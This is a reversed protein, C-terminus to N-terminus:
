VVTLFGVMGLTAMMLSKVRAVVLRQGTNREPCGEPPMVSDCLRATWSASISAAAASDIKVRCATPTATGNAMVACTKGDDLSYYDHNLTRLAAVNIALGLDESNACSTKEDGNNDHDDAATIATTLDAPKAASSGNKSIAFDVSRFSQNQVIPKYYDGCSIWYVDWTLRWSGEPLANVGELFNAVFYPEEPSSGNPLTFSRHLYQYSYGNGVSDSDDGSPNSASRIIYHIQPELVPALEVYNQIAFVVPMSKSDTPPAYTENRPFVLDVEMIGAKSTDDVSERQAAGLKPLM